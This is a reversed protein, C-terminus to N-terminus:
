KRVTRLLGRATRLTIGRRYPHFARGSSSRAPKKEHKQTGNAILFAEYVGISAYMGAWMADLAAQQEAKARELPKYMAVFQDLRNVIRFRPEGCLSSYEVNESCWVLFSRIDDAAADTIVVVDRLNFFRLLRAFQRASRDWTRPHISTKMELIVGITTVDLANEGARACMMSGDIEYRVGDKGIFEQGKHIFSYGQKELAAVVWAEFNKGRQAMAQGRGIQAMSRGRQAM